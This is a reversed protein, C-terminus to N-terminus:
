MFKSAFSCFAAAPLSSFIIPFRSRFIWMTRLGTRYLGVLVFFFNQQPNELKNLTTILAFDQRVAPLQMAEIAHKRRAASVAVEALLVNTFSHGMFSIRFLFTFLNVYPLSSFSLMRCRLEHQVIQLLDQKVQFLVM